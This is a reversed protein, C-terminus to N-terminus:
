DAGTPDRLAGLELSALVDAVGPDIADPYVASWTVIGAGDIVFLARHSRGVRPDYVGYAAAVAGPPFADSLLPFPVAATAAFAAHSWTSDTSIAVVTGGLREIEPLAVALRELQAVAVPHWDAVHFVLVVARGRYDDLGIRSYVGHPLSFRPAVHGPVLPEAPQRAGTVHTPVIPETLSRIVVVERM